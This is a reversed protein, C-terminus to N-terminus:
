IRVLEGNTPSDPDTDIEFNFDETIWAMASMVDDWSEETMTDPHIKGLAEYVTELWTKPDYRHLETM